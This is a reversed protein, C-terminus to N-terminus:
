AAIPANRAAVQVGKGLLAAILCCGMNELAKVFIPKEPTRSFPTMSKPYLNVGKTERIDALPGGHTQM